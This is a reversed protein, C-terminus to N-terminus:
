LVFSVISPTIELYFPHLGLAFDVLFLVLDGRRRTEFWWLGAIEWYAGVFAEPHNRVWDECTAVGTKERCGADWVEQRGAWEGCFATNFVVRLDRFRAELDCGRGSFRALPTGWARPDPASANHESFSSSSASFHQRFAATNRPFVWVSISTRTWEMAYVGGGASNFGDGYTPLSAAGPPARISCGQNKDQNAAAVDCDATALTGSFLPEDAAGMAGSTSNDVVCGATTHLTVANHDADNVGELIDIEGSQPWPAGTGLAWFAPWVGCTSDPMHKLDAVLLGHNWTKKSEARISPRGSPTMNEYDVGLFVSDNLYGIYENEIASTMNQYAVFGNTPDADSFLDFNAFFNTHSLDDTLIYKSFCTTTYTALVTFFSTSRM